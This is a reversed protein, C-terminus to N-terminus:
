WLASPQMNNSSETVTDTTCQDHTFEQFEPIPAFNIPLLAKFDPPGGWVSTLSVELIHYILNISTKIPYQPLYKCNNRTM